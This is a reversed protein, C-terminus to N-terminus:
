PANEALIRAVRPHKRLAEFRAETRVRARFAPADSGSTLLVEARAAAM